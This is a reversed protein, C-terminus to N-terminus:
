QKNLYGCLLVYARDLGQLLKEPDNSKGAVNIGYKLNTGDDRAIWYRNKKSSIKLVFSGGAQPNVFEFKVSVSGYKYKSKIKSLYAFENVSLKQLFYDARLCVSNAINDTYHVYVKLGKINENNKKM